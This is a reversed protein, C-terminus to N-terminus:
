GIDQTAHAVSEGRLNVAYISVDAMISLVDAMTWALGAMQMFDNDQFVNAPIGAKMIEAYFRVDEM